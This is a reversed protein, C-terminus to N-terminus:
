NTPGSVAAVEDEIEGLKKMRERVQRSPSHAKGKPPVNLLQNQIAEMFGRFERAATVRDRRKSPDIRKFFDEYLAEAMQSLAEVRRERRLFRPERSM